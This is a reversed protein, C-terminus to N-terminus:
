LIAVGIAEGGSSIIMDPDDNSDDKLIKVVKKKQKKTAHQPSPSSQTGLRTARKRETIIIDLRVAENHSLVGHYVCRSIKQRCHQHTLHSITFSRLSGVRRVM